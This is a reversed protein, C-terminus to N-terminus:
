DPKAASNFHISVFISDHTQNAIRARMELPLFVDNERTLIVKFGRAQLLPRLRRSVDLAYNKELGENSSAGKDFGGHGADVIVTQLKDTHQIMHPRLQPEITKALDIRSVLLKGDQAVIPFCLWNRVGNIIAERSDSTFQLQNRANSLVTTKGSAEVNTLLGYFKAINDVSLYDRVGVKVIQWDSNPKAEETKLNAKEVPSPSPKANSANAQTSPPFATSGAASILIAGIASFRRIRQAIM